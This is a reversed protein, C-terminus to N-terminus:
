DNWIEPSWAVFQAAVAAALVEMMFANQCGSSAGDTIEICCYPATEWDDTDPSLVIGAGAVCGPYSTAFM